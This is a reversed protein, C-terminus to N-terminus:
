PRRIPVFEVPDAPALLREVLHEDELTRASERWGFWTLDYEDWRGTEVARRLAGRLADAMAARDEVDLAATWAFGPLRPFDAPDASGLALIRAAEEAVRARHRAATETEVVLNKGDASEILVPGAEAAAFVESPRHTLASRRFVAAYPSVM